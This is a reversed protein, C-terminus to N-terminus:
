FSWFFFFLLLSLYKYFLTLRFFLVLLQPPLSNGGPTIFTGGAAHHSGARHVCGAAVRQFSHASRCTFRIETYSRFCPLGMPVVQRHTLCPLLNGM